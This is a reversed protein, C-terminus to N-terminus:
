GSIPRMSQLVNITISLAKYKELITYTRIYDAIAKRLEVSRNMAAEIM